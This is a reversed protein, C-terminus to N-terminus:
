VGKSAKQKLQQTMEDSRKIEEALFELIYGRETPTMKLVDSYPTNMNKTIVYCERVIEKYRFPGYPQGNSM